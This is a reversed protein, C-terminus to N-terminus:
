VEEFILCFISRSGKSLIRQFNVQIHAMIDLSQSCHYHYFQAHDELIVSSFNFSDGSRSSVKRWRQKEPDFHDRPAERGILIM